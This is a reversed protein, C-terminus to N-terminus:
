QWQCSIYGSCLFGNTRKISFRVFELAQSAKKPIIHNCQSQAHNRKRGEYEHAFVLSIFIILNPARINTKLSKSGRMVTKSIM